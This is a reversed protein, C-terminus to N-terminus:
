FSHMKLIVRFISGRGPESDVEIKGKHQKVIKNVVALGLGTGESGKTSFFPEFIKKQTIEDIGIGNDEVEIKFHLKDYIEARVTVTHHEKTKDKSCAAMANTVLNNLMLIISFVDLNVDPLDKDAEYKLKIGLYEAKSQFNIVLSKIIVVLSSKELKITRKKSVYLVNQTVSTIAIVNNKVIKWGKKILEMDGDHIGEDMVYAGGQLGELINKLDHYLMTISQGLGALEGQIRKVKTIDAALEMVYQVNGSDDLIPASYIIMQSITGDLTQVTEESLHIRKDKFTKEVPCGRCKESSGKYVRHCLKGTGDGLDKKSTQNVFLIRFNRDQISLYIPLLDIIDKYFHNSRKM